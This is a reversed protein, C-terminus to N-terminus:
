RRVLVLLALERELLHLAAQRLGLVVDDLVCVLAFATSATTSSPRFRDRMLASRARCIM